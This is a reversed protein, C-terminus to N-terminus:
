KAVILLIYDGAPPAQVDDTKKENQQVLTCQAVGGSQLVFAHSNLQKIQKTAKYM